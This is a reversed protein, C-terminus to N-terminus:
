HKFRSVWQRLESSLNQLTDSYRGSERANTLSVEAEDRVRVVSQSVQEAVASQQIAAAAIQQNMQEILTVSHTIAQLADNAMGTQEVAQRAQGLSSESHAMAQRTLSQLADITTAIETTAHQSRLALARVEDAVVAFGRGQDGARAAEIAANLALLNTQEAVTRIVDLIGGIRESERSLDVMSARTSQVGEALQDIRTVAEAVLRAGVHAQQEAQRAAESAQRTHGAVEHVSAAMQVMASASQESEQSQRQATVGADASVDAFGTAITALQEVGGDIREILGRLGRTMNQMSSLLQGPEDRRQSDFEARLDGEAISRLAAVSRRLPLVIQRHLVTAAVIAFVLLLLSASGLLALVRQSVAVMENGQAIYAADGQKLLKEAQQELALVEAPSAAEVEQRQRMREFLSYYEGAAQRMEDLASRQKSDPHAQLLADLRARVADLSETARQAADLSGDLRYNQQAVEARLLHIQSEAVGTMLDGRSFLALVSYLGAGAVGLSLIVVLGFAILLKRGVSLNDLVHGM